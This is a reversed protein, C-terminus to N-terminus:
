IGIKAGKTLGYYKCYYTPIFCESYFVMNVILNLNDSTHIKFVKDDQVIEGPLAKSYTQNDDSDDIIADMLKLEQGKFCTIAGKNWPNCARVLNCIEKASMTEWQILIDNLVPQHYYCKQKHDRNEGIVPFHSALLNLIFLVGEVCLNSLYQNALECNFYDKNAVQKRWVIPGDDFKDTLLHICIGINEVGHKLQWFVPNPGQYEPLSGFHINFVKPSFARLRHTDLLFSYGIVFCADIQKKKIWTYLDEHHDKEITYNIHMRDLFSLVQNNQFSDKGPSFLVDVQLRIAVLQYVLPILSVSNSIVGICM